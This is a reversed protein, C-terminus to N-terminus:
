TVRQESDKVLYIQMTEYIKTFQWDDVHCDDDDNKLGKETKTGTQGNGNVKSQIDYM